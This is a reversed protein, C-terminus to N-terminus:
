VEGGRSFEEQLVSAVWSADQSREEFYRDLDVNLRRHLYLDIVPVERDGKQDYLYWPYFALCSVSLGDCAQSVTRRFARWTRLLEGITRPLVGVHCESSPESSAYSHGECSTYTVLGAERVLALVVPRVGAEIASEFSPERPTFIHAYTGALVGGFNINGADSTAFCKAHATRLSEWSCLLERVNAIRNPERPRFRIRTRM